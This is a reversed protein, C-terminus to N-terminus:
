ESAITAVPRDTAPWPPWGVVRRVRLEPSGGSIPVADFCCGIGVDRIGIVRAVVGRTERNSVAFLRPRQTATSLERDMVSGLRESSRGLSARLHKEVRVCQEARMTIDARTIDALKVSTGGDPRHQSCRAVDPWVYAVHCEVETPKAVFGHDIEIGLGADNKTKPGHNVTLQHAAEFESVDTVM